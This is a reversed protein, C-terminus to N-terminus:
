QLLWQSLAARDVVMDLLLRLRLGLLLLGPM